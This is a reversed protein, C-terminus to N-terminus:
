ASIDRVRVGQAKLLAIAHEIDGGSLTATLRGYAEGKIRAIRGEHLALDVKAERVIQSLWNQGVVAGRAILRVHRGGAALAPLADMDEHLMRRAAPDRPDLFVEIVDGEEVLVGRELVGVRDCIRRVVEMEHTILVITLGLEQNLSALLDLVQATTEPDLASTAEDCLLISPQCALARAVGVRQKQGGSLQGPYKQAHESLGVRALLAAVRAAIEAPGLRKELELPLAVNQAATKATLLNFHQFIMGIRRRLDRLMQGDLGALAQGTVQVHGSDARELGNILRLLTSKGAGSSGILGYIEGERVAVSVGSLAPTSGFAKSVKDLLICPSPTV